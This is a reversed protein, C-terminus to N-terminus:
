TSRALAIEEFSRSTIAATIPSPKRTSIVAKRDTTMGVCAAIEFTSDTM